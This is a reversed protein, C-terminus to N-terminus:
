QPLGKHNGKYSQELPEIWGYGRSVARGIAFGSPLVANTAFRGKFGMMKQGKYVCCCSRLETFSAYLATDFNVDLGRMASLLQAVLLRNREYLQELEGMKIYKKYIDPKFMLIPSVFEYLLLYDSIGFQAYQTTMVADSVQVNDEGLKLPLDLWPVNLLTEAGSIWGAVVGYGRSWRYQIYPYAYIPKGSVDHQHFRSDEIFAKAIAGRLQPVRFQASGSLRSFWRLEVSAYPVQALLYM